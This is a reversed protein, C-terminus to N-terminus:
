FPIPPLFPFRIERRQELEANGQEDRTVPKPIKGPQLLSKGVYDDRLSIDPIIEACGVVAVMAFVIAARTLRPSLRKTGPSNQM